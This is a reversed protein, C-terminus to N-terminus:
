AIRIFIGPTGAEGDAISREEEWKEEQRELYEDGTTHNSSDCYLRFVRYM